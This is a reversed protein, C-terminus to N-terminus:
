HLQHGSGRRAAPNGIREIGGLVHLAAGTVEVREKTMVVVVNGQRYGGVVGTRARHVAIVAYRRIRLCARVDYAYQVRVAAVLSGKRSPSASAGVAAASRGNWGRAGASGRRSDAARSSPGTRRQTRRM